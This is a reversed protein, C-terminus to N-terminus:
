SFLLGYFFDAAAVDEEALAQQLKPDAYRLAFEYRSEAVLVVERDAQLEPSCHRLAFGDTRVAALGVECDRLLEAHAHQLACGTTQVATLVVERDRLLEAHAYQLADGNRGVAALVVQRDRKLEMCAHELAMGSEQVAALVIQRNQKFETSAHQLASGNRQVAALVFSFDSHLTACANNFTNHNRSVAALMVCRNARAELPLAEVVSLVSPESVVAALWLSARSFQTVTLDVASSNNAAAIKFTTWAQQVRELRRINDKFKNSLSRPFIALDVSVKMDPSNYLVRAASRECCLAKAAKKQLKAPADPQDFDFQFQGLIKSSGAWKFTVRMMSQTHKHEVILLTGRLAKIWLRTEDPGVVCFDKILFVLRPSLKQNLQVGNCYLYM